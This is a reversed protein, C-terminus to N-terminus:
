MRHETVLLTKVIFETHTYSSVSNSMLNEDLWHSVDSSLRLPFVAAAVDAVSTNAVYALGIMPVKFRKVYM